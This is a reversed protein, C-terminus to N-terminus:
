SRRTRRRLFALGILGAGVLAYTAPEPVEATASLFEVRFGTPNGRTGSYNSVVFTLTNLGPVFGSAITYPGLFATYGSAPPTPAAIGTSVSNILVDTLANDAAFRFTISATSPLFGTLDFGTSFNYTGPADSGLGSYGAQPSIWKSTTTNALWPPFPFTSDDTVYATGSNVTWNPDASGVAAGGTNDIAILGGLAPVAVALALPILVWRRMRTEGEYAYPAGGTHGMGCNSTVFWRYDVV